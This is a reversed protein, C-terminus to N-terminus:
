TNDKESRSDNLVNKGLACQVQEKRLRKLAFMNLRQTGHQWQVDEGAGSVHKHRLLAAPKDGGQLHGGCRLWRSYQKKSHVKRPIVVSCVQFECLITHWSDELLFTLWLFVTGLLWDFLELCTRSRRKCIHIFDVTLVSFLSLAALPSATVPSPLFPSPLLFYLNTTVSDDCPHLYLVPSVTFLITIVRHPVFHTSSKPPIM